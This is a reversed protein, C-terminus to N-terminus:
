HIFKALWTMAAIAPVLMAALNRLLRGEMRCMEIKLSAFDAKMESKFEAVDTRLQGIDTKLETRVVALDTKTAMEDQFVSMVLEVQTEAPDRRFGVQELIRIYKLADFM